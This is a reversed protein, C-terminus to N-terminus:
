ATTSFIKRGQLEQAQGNGDDDEKMVNQVDRKMDKFWESMPIGHKPRDDLEPHTKELEQLAMLNWTAHALHSLGSEPDTEECAWWLQLHQMAARMVRGYKFGKEWNRDEYKKAGMTYVAALAALPGAPILDYRLKDPRNDAKHALKSM